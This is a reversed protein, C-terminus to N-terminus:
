PHDTSAPDAVTPAIITSSEGAIIEMVTIKLIAVTPLGPFLVSFNGDPDRTLTTATWDYVEDLDPYKYTVHTYFGTVLNSSRMTVKFKYSLCDSSSQALEHPVVGTTSTYTCGPKIWDYTIIPLDRSFVPGNMLSAIAVLLANRMTVMLMDGDPWHRLRAGRLRQLGTSVLANERFLSADCTYRLMMQPFRHGTQNM